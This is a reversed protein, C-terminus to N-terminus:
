FTSMLFCVAWQPGKCSQELAFNLTVSFYQTISLWAAASCLLCERGTWHLESFSEGRLHHVQWM